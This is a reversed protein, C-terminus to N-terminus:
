ILGSIINSIQVAENFVTNIKAEFYYEHNVVHSNLSIINKVDPHKLIINILVSDFIAKNRIKDLLPLGHNIMWWLEGKIVSIRQILGCSVGEQKEAYNETDKISVALINFPIELTRQQEYDHLKYEQVLTYPYKKSFGFNAYVHLILPSSVSYNEWSLITSYKNPGIYKITYSIVINSLPFEGTITSPLDTTSIKTKEFQILNPYTLGKSKFFTINYTNDKDNKYIKRCRM